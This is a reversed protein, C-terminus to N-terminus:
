TSSERRGRYIVYLLPVVMFKMAFVYSCPLYLLHPLMIFPVALLLFGTASEIWAGAPVADRSRVTNTPVWTRPRRFASDIVARASVFDISGYVTGVTAALGPWDRLKGNGISYALTPLYMLLLVLSGGLM